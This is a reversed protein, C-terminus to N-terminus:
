DNAIKNAVFATIMEYSLIIASDLHINKKNRWLFMHQPYGNSTGRHPVELPYECYINEHHFLLIYISKPQLFMM